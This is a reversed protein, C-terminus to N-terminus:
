LLSACVEVWKYEVCCTHHKLAITVRHAYPCFWASLYRLKPLSATGVRAAAASPNVMQTAKVRLDICEITPVRTTGYLVM